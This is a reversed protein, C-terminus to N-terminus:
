VGQYAAMNQKVDIGLRSAMTEVKPLLDWLHLSDMKQQCLALKDMDEQQSLEHFQALM